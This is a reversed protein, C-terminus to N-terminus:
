SWILNIEKKAQDKKNGSDRFPDDTKADAKDKHGAEKNKEDLRASEQKISGNSSQHERGVYQNSGEDSSQYGTGVSQYDEGNSQYNAIARSISLFAIATLIYLVKSALSLHNHYMYM